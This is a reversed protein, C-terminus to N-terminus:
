RFIDQLGYTLRLAEPWGARVFVDLVDILAQRCEDDQQLLTRHEALYREVLKVVLGAALSDRDYGGAQGAKVTRAIRLFSGRPDFPIFAEHTEIVRHTSAAFGVDCLRDLLSAAESYLRERQEPTVQSDKSQREDFIGTAFYLETAVSDIIQATTRAAKIDPHERDLDQGALETNWTAFTATAHELLDEALRIARRRIENDETASPDVDGYTFAERLVHVIRQAHEPHVKMGGLIVDNVFRGADDAGRMVYVSTMSQVCNERVDAAGARDDAARAFAGRIAAQLRDLEDDPLAM